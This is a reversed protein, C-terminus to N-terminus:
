GLFDCDECDYYHLGEEIWDFVVVNSSFVIKRKEMWGMRSVRDHEGGHGNNKGDENCWNIGYLGAFCHHFLLQCCHYAADFVFFLPILQNRLQIASQKENVHM